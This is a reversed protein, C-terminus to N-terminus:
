PTGGPVGKLGNRTEANFALGALGGGLPVVRVGSFAHAAAQENSIPILYGRAERYYKKTGNDETSYIMDDDGTEPDLNTPTGRIAACIAPIQGEIGDGPCDTQGWAAGCPGPFQRHFGVGRQGRQTIEVGPIGHFNAIRAIAAIQEPRLTGDDNNPDSENEVGIYGDWQAQCAHYDFNWLPDLWNFIDGTFSVGYCASSGRGYTKFTADAAAISGDIHHITLGILSRPGSSAAYNTGPIPGLYRAEPIAAV